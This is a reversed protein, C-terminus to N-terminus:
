LIQGVGPPLRCGHENSKEWRSTESWANAASAHKCIREHHQSAPRKSPVRQMKFMLIPRPVPEVVVRANRILVVSEEPFGSANGAPIWSALVVAMCAAAEALKM